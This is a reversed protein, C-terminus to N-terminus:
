LKRYTRKNGSVAWAKQSIFLLVITLIAMANYIGYIIKLVGLFVKKM